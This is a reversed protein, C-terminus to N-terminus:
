TPEAHARYVHPNIIEMMRSPHALEKFAFQKYLGHADQTALLFRRLGQLGEHAKVEQILWKSLGRGRGIVRLSSPMSSRSM